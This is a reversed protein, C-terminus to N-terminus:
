TTGGEVLGTVVDDIYRTRMIQAGYTGSGLRSLYLERMPGGAMVVTMPDLLRGVV